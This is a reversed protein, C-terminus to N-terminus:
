SFVKPRASEGIKRKRNTGEPVVLLRSFLNFIMSAAL